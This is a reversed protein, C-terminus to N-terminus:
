RSHPGPEPSDDHQKGRHIGELREEHSGRTMHHRQKSAGRTVQEESPTAGRERAERAKQRRQEENGEMKKGVMASVQPKKQNTM